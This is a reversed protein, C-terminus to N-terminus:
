HYITACQKGVKEEASEENWTKQGDQGGKLAQKAEQVNEHLLRLQSSIYDANRADGTWRTADIVDLCSNILTRVTILQEIVLSPAKPSSSISLRYSNQGRPPPLSPLRLQIDGKVLRTGALTIYGKLSESRQSSLVLTSGIDKSTLLSACEELGAKLSQLTDQLASLLWELERELCSDQEAQVRDAPLPPWILTSM